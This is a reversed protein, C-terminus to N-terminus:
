HEMGFRYGIPRLRGRMKIKNKQWSPLVKGLATHIFKFLACRIRGRVFYDTVRKRSCPAYNVGVIRRGAFSHGAPQIRLAEALASRRRLVRPSRANRIEAHRHPRHGHRLRLRIRSRVPNFRRDKQSGPERKAQGPHRDEALAPRAFDFDNAVCNRQVAGSHAPVCDTRRERHRPIRKMRRRDPQRLPTM